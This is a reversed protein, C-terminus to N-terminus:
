YAALLAIFVYNKKRQPYCIKGCRDMFLYFTISPAVFFLM